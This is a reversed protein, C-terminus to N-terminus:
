WNIQHVVPGFDTTVGDATKANGDFRVYTTGSEAASLKHNNAYSWLNLGSKSYKQRSGNAFDADSPGDNQYELTYGVSHIKGEVETITAISVRAILDGTDGNLSFDANINGSM